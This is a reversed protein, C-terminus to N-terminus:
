AACCGFSQQCCNPNAVQYAPIPAPNLYQELATTQRANDALLQATQANQSAALELSTIHQRLRDNERQEDRLEKNCLWDFIQRYNANDNDVIRQTNATGAVLLDRIGDSVAARDACNEALITSNLNAIGMRNECCCDSFQSQLGNFGQMTATQAAFAQQMDAVQRANAAQEAQNFGNLMGMSLTNFGSNVTDRMDCCCNCLQTALAQVGQSVGQVSSELNQFRFGSNISDSQNLWPYLENGGINGAGYGGGAGGGIGRNGFGGLLVVLFLFWLAGNGGGFGDDYRGGGNGTATAIDQLTYDTM